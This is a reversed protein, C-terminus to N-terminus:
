FKHPPLPPKQRTSLMATHAHTHTHMRAEPQPQLHLPSYTTPNQLQATSNYHLQAFHAHSFSHAFNTHLLLSVHSSYTCAPSTVQSINPNTLSFNHQIYPHAFLKNSTKTLSRFLTHFIQKLSPCMRWKWAIRMTMARLLRRHALIFPNTECVHRWQYLYLHCQFCDVITIRPIHAENPGTLNTNRRSSVAHRHCLVRSTNGSCPVSCGFWSASHWTDRINRTWM